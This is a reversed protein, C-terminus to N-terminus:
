VVGTSGRRRGKGTRRICRGRSGADGARLATDLEPTFSRHSIPGWWIMDVVTSERLLRAARREADPSLGYAHAGPGSM